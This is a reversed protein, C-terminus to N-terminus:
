FAIDVEDGAAEDEAAIEVTDEAEILERYAVQFVEPCYLAKPRAKTLEALIGHKALLDLDAKATPYTVNLKKALQAPGVIPDIFLSEIVSHTRPTPDVVRQHYEKKLRNFENCRNISDRAQEVVGQLCLRIWQTWAGETSVRYLSGIYEKRFREYFASMYLWPAAHGLWQYIMLALMARGIRSNSDMFPHITEFQYHVIFAKVLRDLGDDTNIYREMNGVLRDVEGHPPPIFRAGTGIQVQIKRFEGPNYHKGRVGRLLRQHMERIVRNCVPLTKLLECGHKLAVGYNHVELWDAARSSTKTPEKPNLEYLLLQEPTVYTGEIKSSTLAERNQLPRLLLQPDPLTQGIGNLTGLAEKAEVLLTWLTPDFDWKPPLEDPIFAWDKGQPTTIEVLRGPSAESFRRKDM